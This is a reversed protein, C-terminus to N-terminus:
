RGNRALLRGGTITEAFSFRYGALIEVPALLSLEEYPSDFFELEADGRWVNAIRLDESGGTVLETLDSESQDWAPFHRTHVLPASALAPAEAPSELTIRAEVLRRDGAALSGAFREGPALGPTARGVAFQKTIWISGLKKPYGQILGRVLSFDRDVWCFPSRVMPKGQWTCSLAVYFEKYQSRVPDLLESGDDTASQWDGFIAAARGPDEGPELGEPLFAKVAEPDTRYEVMLVDGSFHWPPPPVLSSNGTPSFPLTYGQLGNM